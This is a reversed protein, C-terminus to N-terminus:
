LRMLLRFSRLNCRIKELHLRWFEKGPKKSTVALFQRGDKLECSFCVEIKNGGSLIGALGGAFEWGASGALKNLKDETQLEASKISRLQIRQQGQRLDGALVKFSIASM